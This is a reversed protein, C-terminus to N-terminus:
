RKRVSKSRCSTRSLGPVPNWAARLSLCAPVGLHVITVLLYRKGRKVVLESM